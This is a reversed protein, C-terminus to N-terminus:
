AFDAAQLEAVNAASHKAQELLEMSFFNSGKRDPVEKLGRIVQMIAHRASDETRQILIHVSALAKLKSFVSPEHLKKSLKGIVSTVCEPDEVEADLLGVLDELLGVSLPTDFPTTLQLTMKELESSFVGKAARALNGILGSKMMGTAKKSDKSQPIAASRPAGKPSKAFISSFITCVLIVMLLSACRIMKM